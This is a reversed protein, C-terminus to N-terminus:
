DCYASPRTSPDSLVTPGMQRGPYAREQGVLVVQDGARIQWIMHTEKVMKMEFDVPDEGVEKLKRAEDIGGPNGGDCENEM